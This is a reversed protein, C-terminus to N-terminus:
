LVAKEFRKIDVESPLPLGFEIHEYLNKAMMPALMVGRSGLGNLVHINNYQQHTGLLPKRDIVTPRIGAVQDIVEFDCNLIEKVKSILEERAFATPETTKDAWNYTAGVKFLENGIPLIFVNTNVIVDLNLEPARILLVEGKTGQLPLHCFFPNQLMGFGETFVIHKAKIDKYFLHDNHIKLVSYDFSESRLADIEKLYAKYSTLLPIIDLFGTSKVEGYGFSADIGNYRDWRLQTSLFSSLSPQDAALFWNNQEEVSFFKRLMPKRHNFTQQLKAQILGYFIELYALQQAANWVASYRKLIVPNYLGAAVQSAPPKGDDFLIVKKGNQLATELFTVGALGSGVVIYDIM